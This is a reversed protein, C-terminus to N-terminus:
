YLSVFYYFIIVNIKGGEKLEIKIIRKLDLERECCDYVLFFFCLVFLFHLPLFCKGVYELLM